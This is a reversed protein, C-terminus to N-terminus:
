FTRPTTQGRPVSRDAFRKLWAECAARTVEKPKLTALEPWTEMIAAVIQRYYLATSEKIGVRNPVSALYVKTLDAVTVGNVGDFHARRESM